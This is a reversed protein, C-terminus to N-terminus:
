MFSSRRPAPSPAIFGYGKEDNWIALKGKDRM